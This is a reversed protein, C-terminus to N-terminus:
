RRELRFRSSYELSSASNTKAQYAVEQFQEHSPHENSDDAARLLADIEQKHSADDRQLARWVEGTAVLRESKKLSIRKNLHINLIKPQPTQKEEM